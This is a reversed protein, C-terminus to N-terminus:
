ASPGIWCAPSYIHPDGLDEDGPRDHGAQQHDGEHDEAGEAIRLKRDALQGIHIEGGDRHRGDQGAGIRLGHGRRDGRRQLVLEGGDGPDFEIVEVLLWPVVRMVNCNERSRLISAAAWSTCDAIAPLAACAAARVQRIRRGHALDVGRIRRDQEQRQARGGQRQLLHVFIGLGHEGLADRAQRAHGLHIDEARLFEGHADLEIGIRQGGAADADVLDLGGGLGAIDIQRGAAELARLDAWFM